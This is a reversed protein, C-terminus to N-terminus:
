IGWQNITEFIDDPDPEYDSFDYTASNDDIWEDL